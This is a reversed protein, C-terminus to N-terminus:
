RFEKGDACLVRLRMISYSEDMLSVSPLIEYKRLAAMIFEPSLSEGGATLTANIKIKGCEGCYQAKFRHINATIDIDKEGSKTKKTMMIPSSEFFANIKEALEPSSNVSDLLIRYEAKSIDAFKVAPDYVEIVQLEETLQKNLLEKIDDNPIDKDIKLDLYECVSEVGVPLPLAFVMKAHPNFGKTYWIPIGARVLARNLLRHLDLHSIYQLSGTKLFKIRITKPAELPALDYKIYCDASTNQKVKISKVLESVM